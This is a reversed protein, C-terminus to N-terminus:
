RVSGKTTTAVLAAFAVSQLMIRLNRATLVITGNAPLRKTAQDVVNKSITEAQNLRM